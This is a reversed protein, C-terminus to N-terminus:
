SVTAAALPLEQVRRFLVTECHKRVAEHWIVYM